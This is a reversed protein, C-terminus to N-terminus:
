PVLGPPPEVRARPGIRGGPAHEIHRSNRAPQDLRQPRKGCMRHFCDHRHPVARPHRRQAIARQGKRRQVILRCDGRIHHRAVPRRAIGKRHGAGRGQGMPQVKAHLQPAKRLLARQLASHQEGPRLVPCPEEGAHRHALHARQSTM